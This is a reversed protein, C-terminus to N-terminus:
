RPNQSDELLQLSAILYIFLWQKAREESRLQSQVKSRRFCHHFSQWRWNPAKHDYSLRSKKGAISSYSKSFIHNRCSPTVHWVVRRFIYTYKCIKYLEICHIVRYLTKWLGIARVFRLFSNLMLSSLEVVLM